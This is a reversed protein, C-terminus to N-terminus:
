DTATTAVQANRKADNAAGKATPGLHPNSPQRAMGNILVDAIQEAYEEIAKDTRPSVGDLKEAFPLFTFLTGAGNTVLYFLTSPAIHRLQGGREAKQLLEIWPRTVPEIYRDYIFDFREGGEVEEKLLIKIVAPYKATCLVFLYIIQHLLEIPDKKKAHNALTIQLESSMPGFSHDICAEWLARKSSFYHHVLSHSVGLKRTLERVSMMEYGRTSFAILAAEVLEERSRVVRADAPPRGRRRPSATMTATM